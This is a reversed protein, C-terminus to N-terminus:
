LSIKDVVHPIWQEGSHISDAGHHTASDVAAAAAAAAAAGLHTVHPSASQPPHSPPCYHCITVFQSSSVRHDHLPFQVAPFLFQFATGPM